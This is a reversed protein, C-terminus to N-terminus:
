HPLTVTLTEGALSVNGGLAEILRVAVAAGLDRMDEGLVVPASAPTIPAITLGEGGATVSVEDLGGYRLACQALAAVARATAEEDVRVRGGEGAVRVREEGLREAAVRALAATDVEAPKPEYRGAAIRAALSLEDLLEGLQESASEIM